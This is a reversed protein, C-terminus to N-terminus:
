VFIETRGFNYSQTRDSELSDDTDDHCEDYALNWFIERLRCVKRSTKKAVNYFQLTDSVTTLSCGFFMYYNLGRDERNM